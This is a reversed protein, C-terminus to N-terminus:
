VYYSTPILNSAALERVEAKNSIKAFKTKLSQKM